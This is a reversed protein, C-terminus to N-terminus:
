ESEDSHESVVGLERFYAACRSLGVAVQVRVTPEAIGLKAAIEGHSLGEFTRLAIVARCRPPLTAIAAVALELELRRNVMEPVDVDEDLIGWPECEELPVDRGTAVKRLLMLSTTRAVSFLYARVSTIRTLRRARLLRVYSEQVVDDVDRVQPFRRRLWARLHPEHPLVQEDFWQAQEPDDAQM